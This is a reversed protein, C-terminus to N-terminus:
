WSHLLGPMIRCAGTIGVINIPTPPVSRVPDSPNVQKWRLQFFMLVLNLPLGQRLLIPHFFLSPYGVDEKAEAYTHM